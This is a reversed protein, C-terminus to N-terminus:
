AVQAREEGAWAARAEAWRRANRDEAAAERNARARDAAMAALWADGSSAYGSGAYRWSGVLEVGAADDASTAGLAIGLASAADHGRHAGAWAARNARLATFTVSYARSKTLCHGRYGLLHAARGVQELGAVQGLELAHAVLTRVHAPTSAALGALTRVAHLPAGLDETAKSAYKALDGAVVRALLAGAPPEADSPGAPRARGLVQVDLRSGWGLAARPLGGPTRTFADPLGAPLPVSVRAVAAALAAALLEATAGAPPPILAGAPDVGDLRLLAHLHVVGRRQFEAVKIFSVRVRKAAEAPCLALVPGLLGALERRTVITTRRWLEPALANFLVVGAADACRPCLPAGLAPDDGAHVATCVLAMGHPCRRARGRRPPPHCAGRERRAHVAGFGPATLTAFVAPHTAVAPDVGHGGALGSALLAYADGRYLHACSPCLAGRRTKCAVLAVGDPALSSEYVRHLEGTSRELADVAGRLRVPRACGGVRSLQAAFAPFAPSAIRELASSLTRADPRGPAPPALQGPPHAGASM